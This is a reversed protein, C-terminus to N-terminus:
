GEIQVNHEIAHRSRCFGRALLKQCFRRSIADYSDGFRPSALYYEVLEAYTTKGGVFDDVEKAAPPLGTLAFALRRIQTPKDAEPNPKLGEKELRALIFRDIENRPWKRDKVDPVRPREPPIFSWHKRWPAGQKVWLRLTEIQTKSLPKGHKPPPMELLFIPM